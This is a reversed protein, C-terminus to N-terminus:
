KGLYKSLLSQKLEKSNFMINYEEGHHTSTGNEIEDPISQIVEGLLTEIFDELDAYLFESSRERLPVLKLEKKWEINPM